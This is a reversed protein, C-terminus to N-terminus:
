AWAYVDSRADAEEGRKQEPAMYEYTGLLARTSTGEGELLTRERGISKEVGVTPLNGMSRSVSLQAQTRIFDEGVVCALGFDSIKVKIIGSASSELLVNSPKLDRHVVGKSHACALGELLQQLIPIFEQETIRGGHDAALDALSVCAGTSQRSAAVGHVLEMRLWYRGDTEGFEDVRVINPHELNAMVKAERRFRAVAEPRSAFDQPLLKLGYRRELTTHEAEYVEGMGGRGLLRIIRYQGFTLNASLLM